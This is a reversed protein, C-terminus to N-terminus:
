PGICLNARVLVFRRSDCSEVVPVSPGFGQNMGQAVELLCVVLMALDPLETKPPHRLRGAALADALSGRECFEMLLWTEVLRATRCTARM